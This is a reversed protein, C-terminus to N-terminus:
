FEQSLATITRVRDHKGGGGLWNNFRSVVFYCFELAYQFDPGIESMTDDWSDFANTWPFGEFLCYIGKSLQKCKQLILLQPSFTVLEWKEIQFDSWPGTDFQVSHFQARWVHTLRNARRQNCKILLGEFAQVKLGEKDDSQKASIVEIHGNLGRRSSARHGECPNM